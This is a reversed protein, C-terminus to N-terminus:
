QLRLVVNASVETLNKLLMPTFPRSLTISVYSQRGTPCVTDCDVTGATGPCECVPAPVTVTVGSWGSLMRNIAAQIGASDAPFTLAYAAGAQAAASLRQKQQLANGLDMVGVLLLVTIPAVLAFEIAALGKRCRM